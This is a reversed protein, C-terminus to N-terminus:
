PKITKITNSTSIFGKKAGQMTKYGSQKGGSCSAIKEGNKSLLRWYWRGNKKSKYFQLKAKKM